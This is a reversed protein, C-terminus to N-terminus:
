RSMVGRIERELHEALQTLPVSVCRCPERRRPLSFSIDFSERGDLWSPAYCLEFADSLTGILEEDCFINLTNPTM